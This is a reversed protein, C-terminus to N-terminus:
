VFPSGDKPAEVEGSSGFLNGHAFPAALALRCLSDRLKTSANDAYPCM